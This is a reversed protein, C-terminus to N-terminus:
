KKKKIFIEELRYFTGHVITLVQLLSPLEHEKRNAKCILFANLVFIGALAITNQKSYDYCQLAAQKKWYIIKTRDRYCPLTTYVEVQHSSVVMHPQEKFDNNLLVSKWYNLSSEKLPFFNWIVVVFMVRIVLVDVTKNPCKETSCLQCSFTCYHCQYSIGSLQFKLKQFVKQEEGWYTFEASSVNLYNCHRM